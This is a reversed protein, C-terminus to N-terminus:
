EIKNIMSNCNDQNKGRQGGGGLMGWERLCDGCWQEHGDTMHPLEKAVGNGVNYEIDGHSSQLWRNTNRLGRVQEGMGGDVRGMQCADFTTQIWLETETRRRQKTQTKYNNISIYKQWKM